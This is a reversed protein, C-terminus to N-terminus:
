AGAGRNTQDAGARAAAGQRPGGDGGERHEASKVFFPRWAGMEGLRHFTTSAPYCPTIGRRRTARSGAGHCRTSSQTIVIESATAKTSANSASTAFGYRTGEDEISGVSCQARGAEPQRARKESRTM